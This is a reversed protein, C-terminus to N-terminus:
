VFKEKNTLKSKDRNIKKLDDWEKMALVVMDERIDIDYDEEFQELLTQM